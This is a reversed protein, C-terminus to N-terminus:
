QIRCQILLQHPAPCTEIVQLRQQRSVPLENSTARWSLLAGHRPWCPPPSPFSPASPPTPPLSHPAGPVGITCNFRITTFGGKTTLNLSAEGGIAWVSIFETVSATLFQSNTRSLMKALLTDLQTWSSGTPWSKSAKMTLLLWMRSIM